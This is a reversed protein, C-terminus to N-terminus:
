MFVIVVFVSWKWVRDLVSININAIFTMFKSEVGDHIVIEIGLPRANERKWKAKVVSCEGTMNVDWLVVTSGLRAFRKALLRGLGGGGGTILVIEGALSKKKRYSSPIFCQVISRVIYFICVLLFAIINFITSLLRGHGEDKIMKSSIMM